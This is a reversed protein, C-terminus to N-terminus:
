IIARANAVQKIIILAHIVPSPATSEVKEAHNAGNNSGKPCEVLSKKRILVIM